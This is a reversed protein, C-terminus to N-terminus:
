RQRPRRIFRVGSDVSGNGGGGELRGEQRPDVTNDHGRGGSAEGVPDGLAVTAPDDGINVQPAGDAPEQPMPEIGDECPPLNAAGSAEVQLEVGATGGGEHPQPASPLIARSPAQGDSQQRQQDMVAALRYSLRYTPRTLMQTTTWCAHCIVTCTAATAQISELPVNATVARDIASRQGDTQIFELM